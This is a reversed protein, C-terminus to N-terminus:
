TKKRRNSILPLCNALTRIWSGELEEFLSQNFSFAQNAEEIVEHSREESLPLQSLRRRYENKFEKNNDIEDFDFFSLGDSGDLGLSRRAIKSIVQGGSLDGLYRTYSHAVLLTPDNAGLWHIRDVYENRAPTSHVQSRWDAGYLYELDAELPAKRSLVPFYIPGVIPHDKHRELEEELACYVLYLGAQMNGFSALDMVGKLIGQVFNTSEAFRHAQATEARLRQAFTVDDKQGSAGQISADIRGTRPEAVQTRVPDSVMERDIEGKNKSDTM